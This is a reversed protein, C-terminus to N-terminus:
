VSERPIPEIALTWWGTRNGIRGTIFIALAGVALGAAAGAMAGNDGAVVNGIVAGAILLALPLGYVLMAGGLRPLASKRILVAQGVELGKVASWRIVPDDDGTHCHGELQCGHCEKPPFVRISAIGSEISIVTGRDVGGGGVADGESCTPPLDRQM